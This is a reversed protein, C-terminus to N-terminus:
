KISLVSGCAPNIRYHHGEKQEDTQRNVQRNYCSYLPRLLQTAMAGDGM